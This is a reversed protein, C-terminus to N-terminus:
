ASASANSSAPSGPRLWINRSGWAVGGVGFLFVKEVEPRTGCECSLRDPNEGQRGTDCLHVNRCNGSPHARASDSHRAGGAAM